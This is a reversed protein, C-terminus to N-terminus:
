SGPIQDVDISASDLPSINEQIDRVQTACGMLNEITSAFPHQNWEGDETVLFQNVYEAGLFDQLASIATYLVSSSVEVGHHTKILSTWVPLVKVIEHTHVGHWSYQDLSGGSAERADEVPLRLLTGCFPICARDIQILDHLHRLRDQGRMEMIQAGVKARLRIIEYLDKLEAKDGRQLVNLGWHRLITLDGMLDKQM